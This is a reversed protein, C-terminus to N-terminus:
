LRKMEAVGKILALSMVWAESEVYSLIVECNLEEVGTWRMEALRLIVGEHPVMENPLLGNEWLKKSNSREM